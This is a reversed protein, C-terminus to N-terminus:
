ARPYLHFLMWYVVVGTVSVYLWIPYTWRAIRKHKEFQGKLARTLTLVALVPVIGALITHTTLIFFYVLSVWGHDGFRVVGAHYHYTLYCILFVVSITFATVMCFRHLDKRGRKIFGLGALLFLGSLGNLAANIAPFVSYDM